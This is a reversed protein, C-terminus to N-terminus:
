VICHFEYNGSGVEKSSGDPLYVVATTNCPIEVNMSFNKDALHWETGIRGYESMYTRKAWTFTETLEPKIVIKKFGPAAMDIGSIKRFMWDDVCGFAYHNLSTTVPSGDPEYAIYNEWITTAGQKVEYLWSPCKTQLLIRYAKDTRGIKCLADLLFPTTLFGTDLCDGNEEIKRILHRAVCEKKEEPALDFAIILVYAGMFDLPMIGDEGIIGKQIAEKMRSAIDRYYLEDETNGLLAAADAMIRCSNWGFIPACYVSSNIRKSASRDIGDVVQSPILWEGYQHGTNWLYRDIERPLKMKGRYKEATNIIYDCWRKMTGYQEKLIRTNGTLEYMSWPIICAADGWGAEGVPGHNHYVLRNLKEFFDYIGTLPIVNPIAGNKQQNCTMNRLWRTLFPTTNENLMATRAYIQIDGTWGGKERQPCDTPISIMNSRQSWRTNEYLRNIDAHSTEFTGLDENDSSLVVATFDEPKVPADCIVRVYRFGHYTFHPRYEAPKGNSIYVDTQTHGTMDAGAINNFYNGQSDKTEFHDLILKTGAPLDVKVRLVGALNQGFDIITEGKPSVEMGVAEVEKVPRVPEGYQVVLNDDYAGSLIGNQWGGDDFGACNWGEQEMQADYLEGAFLDSSRVPSEAVKLKDDSLVTEFTGDEYEIRTEFLVAHEMKFKRDRSKFNKSDYWGDGVLMGIANHGEQLLSTVNYVQYCLYKEYLTFEPALERDDARNGNISLQYAGHCTAYVRARKVGQRVVFEKRFYEAPNQGGNGKRAKKMAFPSRVWQASWERKMFGTEFSSTATATDGTNDTATVTWLYDSFSQFPKGKYEVFVSADSEVVGSDWVLGEAGTVTIHYSKQMVNQKKSTIGWSFYPMEDVCPCYQNNVKLRSLEM